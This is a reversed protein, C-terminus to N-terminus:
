GKERVKFFELLKVSLNNQYEEYVVAFLLNVFVLAAIIGFPFFIFLSAHHARFMDEM